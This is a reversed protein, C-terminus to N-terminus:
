SKESVRKPLNNQAVSVLGSMGSLNITDIASSPVIVLAGKQKKSGSNKASNTDM